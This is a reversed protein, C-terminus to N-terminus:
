PSGLAAALAQAFASPEKAKSVKNKLYTSVQLKELADETEALSARMRALESVAKVLLSKEESPPMSLVQAILPAVDAHQTADALACGLSLVEALYEGYAKREEASEFDGGIKLCVDHTFDESLLLVAGDESQKVRWPGKDPCPCPM